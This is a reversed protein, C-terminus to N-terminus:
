RCSSLNSLRRPSVKYYDEFLGNAYYKYQTELDIRQRRWINRLDLLRTSFADVLNEVSEIANSLEM